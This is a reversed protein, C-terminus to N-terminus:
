VSKVMIRYELVSCLLIYIAIIIVLMILSCLRFTKSTDPGLRLAGYPSLAGLSMSGAGIYLNFLVDNERCSAVALLICWERGM